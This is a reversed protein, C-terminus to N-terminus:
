GPRFEDVPHPAGHHGSGAARQAKSWGKGLYASVPRDLDILGKERAVMMLVAVFSKQQSAVDELTAGHADREYVFASFLRDDKPAPWNREMITVGNQIVLFGTTNHNSLYDALRAQASQSDAASQALAGPACVPQSLMLISALFLKARNRMM